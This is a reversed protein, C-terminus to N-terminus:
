ENMIVIYHLVMNVTLVVKKVKQLVLNKTHPFGAASMDGRPSPTSLGSTGASNMMAASSPIQPITPETKIKVEKVEEKADVLELKSPNSGLFSVLYLDIYVM